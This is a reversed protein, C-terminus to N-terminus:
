KPKGPYAKLLTELERETIPIMSGHKVEPPTSVAIKKFTDFDTTEWAELDSHFPDAYVYWKDQGIVKVVEPGETPRTSDPFVDRGVGKGGFTDKKPDLNTATLLRNGMKDQVDGPKHFGYYTGDHQVITLDIDHIGLDYYITSRAPTIDKWDRTTVYHITNHGDHISAWFVYFLGDDAVYFFEPAWARKCSEDM